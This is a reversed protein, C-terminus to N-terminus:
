RKPVDIRSETKILVQEAWGRGIADFAGGPAFPVVMRITRDPYDARAEVAALVVSLVAGIAVGLAQM